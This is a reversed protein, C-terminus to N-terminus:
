LIKFVDITDTDRLIDDTFMEAKITHRGITVAWWPYEYPSIPDTIELNDDIYIKVKTNENISTEARITIPGVLITWNFPLRFFQAGLAYFNGEQPTTIEIDYENLTNIERKENHKQNPTINITTYSPVIIISLLFIATIFLVIKKM